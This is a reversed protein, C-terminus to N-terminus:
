ASPIPPIDGYPTVILFRDGGGVEVLGGPGGLAGGVNLDGGGVEVDWSSGGVGSGVAFALNGNGPGAGAVNLPGFAYAINGIGGGAAASSDTGIAIALDGAGSAATASGSQLLNFGGVSVAVNPTLDQAITQLPKASALSQLTQEWPPLSTAATSAGVHYGFMASVDQAWMQEYDSEVAAIAPANQGFLNTEVLQVLGNRNAAVALPHVTAGLASEFASAVARAQGAAGAAKAEAASLWGAYPAAAAAM